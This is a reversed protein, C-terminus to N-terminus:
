LYSIDWGVATYPFFPWFFLSFADKQKSDGCSCIQNPVNTSLWPVMAADSAETAFYCHSPRKFRQKRGDSEDPNFM